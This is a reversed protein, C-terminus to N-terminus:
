QKDWEDTDEEDTWSGNDSDTDFDSDHDHATLLSPPPAGVVNGDNDTFIPLPLGTSETKSHDHKSTGKSKKKKEKQTGKKEVPKPSNTPSSSSTNPIPNAPEVKPSPLNSYLRSSEMREKDTIPTSDLTTLKPMRSIIYQRYDTYEKLSHGNFFNPCADNKLMSLFKLNPTNEVLKDIFITLNAIRNSNVWLTHLKSMLPIKTHSNVKNGDLVLVQLQTFGKLPSLDQISNNSLDLEKVTSGFKQVLKQNIEDIDRYAFSIREPIIEAM